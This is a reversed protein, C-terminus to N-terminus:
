LPSTRNAFCLVTGDSVDTDVGDDEEDDTDLADSDADGAESPEQIDLTDIEAEM